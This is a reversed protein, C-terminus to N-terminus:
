TGLPYAFYLTCVTFSTHIMIVYICYSGVFFRGLEDHAETHSLSKLIQGAAIRFTM